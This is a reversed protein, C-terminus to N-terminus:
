PLATRDCKVAQVGSVVHRGGRHVDCTVSPDSMALAGLAARLRHRFPNIGLGLSPAPRRAVDRDTDRPELRHDSELMRDADGAAVSYFLTVYFCLVQLDM